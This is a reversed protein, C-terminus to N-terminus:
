ILPGIALHIEPLNIGWLKTTTSEFSRQLKRGGIDRWERFRPHSTGPLLGVRYLLARNVSEWVARSPTPLLLMLLHGM